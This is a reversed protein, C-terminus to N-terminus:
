RKRNQQSSASGSRQVTSPSGRWQVRGDRRPKGPPRCLAERREAPPRLRGGLRNCIGVRGRVRHARSRSPRRDYVDKRASKSVCEKRGGGLWKVTGPGAVGLLIRAPDYLAFVSVVPEDGTLELDCINVDDSCEVATWGYFHYTPHSIGAILRITTPADVDFKFECAVFGQSCTNEGVKDPTTLFVDDYKGPEGESGDPGALVELIVETQAARDAVGQAGTVVLLAFALALLLAFRRPLWRMRTAAAAIRQRAGIAAGGEYKTAVPM